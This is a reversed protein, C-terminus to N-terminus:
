IQQSNVHKIGVFSKRMFDLIYTNNMKRSKRMCNIIRKMIWSWILFCVTDNILFHVSSFVYNNIVDYDIRQSYV